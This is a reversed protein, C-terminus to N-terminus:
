SIDCMAVNKMNAQTLALTDGTLSMKYVRLSIPEATIDTDRSMLTAVKSEDDLLTKSLTKVM